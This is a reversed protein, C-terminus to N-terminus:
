LAKGARFVEEARHLEDPTNVGVVEMPDVPATAVDRGEQLALRILDTLYYEQSANTNTLKPLSEWLWTANFLFICPNVERRALEDPTADKVERSEVLRGQEDRLIRGWSVFTSFQEEFHPVMTTLMSVVTGHQEHLTVLTQLTTPSIFPHDGYLVLIHAADAAVTKTCMAAHGTGLQTDQIAVAFGEGLQARFLDVSDPALVLIPRADIGSKAVSQLLHAIMPKGAILVLPKPLAAGMRRGKGAALIVVRTNTMIGTHYM